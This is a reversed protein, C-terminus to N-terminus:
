HGKTLICLVIYGVWIAGFVVLMASGAITGIHGLITIDM